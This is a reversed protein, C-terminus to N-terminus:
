VDVPQVPKADRVSPGIDKRIDARTEDEYSVRIMAGDLSANHMSDLARKSAKPVTTGPNRIVKTSLVSGISTNIGDKQKVKIQHVPQSNASSTYDVVSHVPKVVNRETQVTNMSTCISHVCAPDKTMVIDNDQKEVVSESAEKDEIHVGCVSRRQTPYITVELERHPAVVSSYTQTQVHRDLIKRAPKDMANVNTIRGDRDTWRDVGNVALKTFGMLHKNPTKRPKKIITQTKRKHNPYARSHTCENTPVITTMREQGNQLYQVMFGSRYLTCRRTPFTTSSMVQPLCKDEVFQVSLPHGCMCKHRIQAYAAKMHNQKAFKMFLSAKGCRTRKFIMQSLPWTMSIHHYIPLKSIVSQGIFPM